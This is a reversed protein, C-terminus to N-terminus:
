EPQIDGWTRVMRSTITSSRETRISDVYQVYFYYITDKALKNYSHTYSQGPQLIVGLYVDPTSDGREAYVKVPVSSTNVYQLTISSTSVNIVNITPAVVPDIYNYVPVFPAVSSKSNVDTYDSLSLVASTNGFLVMSTLTTDGLGPEYNPDNETLILASNALSSISQNQNGILLNLLHKIFLNSTEVSITGVWGISSMAGKDISKQAVSNMSGDASKCSAWIALNVNSMDPLNNASFPLFNLGSPYKIVGTDGHSSFIIYESNMSTLGKLNTNVNIDYSGFNTLSEVAYRNPYQGYSAFLQNVTSINGTTNVNAPINVAYVSITQRRVQVTITDSTIVDYAHIQFTISSNSTGSFGIIENLGYGKNDNPYLTGSLTIQTDVSGYTELVYYGSITPTFTFSYSSGEVADNIEYLDNLTVVNTGYHYHLKSEAFVDTIGIMAFMSLILFALFIKKM